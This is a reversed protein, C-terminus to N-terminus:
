PEFNELTHFYNNFIEDAMEYGYFESLMHIVSERNLLGQMFSDMIHYVRDDYAM